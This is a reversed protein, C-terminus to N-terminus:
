EALAMSNDLYFIFILEKSKPNFYFKLLKCMFVPSNEEFSSMESSQNLRNLLDEAKKARKRSFEERKKRRSICSKLSKLIDKSEKPYDDPAHATKLEFTTSSQTTNM